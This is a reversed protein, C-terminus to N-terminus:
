NFTRVLFRVIILILSKLFAKQILKRRLHKSTQNDFFQRMKLDKFFCWVNIKYQDEVAYKQMFKNNMYAILMVNNVVASASNKLIARNSPEEDRGDEALKRERAESGVTHGFLEGNEM